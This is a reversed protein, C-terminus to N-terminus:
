MGLYNVGLFRDGVESFGAIGHGPNSGVVALWLDSMGVVVGGLWGTLCCCVCVSCVVKAYQTMGREWKDREVDLVSVAERYQNETVCAAACM